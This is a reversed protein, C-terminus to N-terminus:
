EESRTSDGAPPPSSEKEEGLASKMKDEYRDMRKKVDKGTDSISIPGPNSEDRESM